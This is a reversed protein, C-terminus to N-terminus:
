TQSWRLRVGSPMGDISAFCHTPKSLPTGVLTSISLSSAAKRFSVCQQLVLVYSSYSFTLMNYLLYCLPGFTAIPGFLVLSKSIGCSQELAQLM